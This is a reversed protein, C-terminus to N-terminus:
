RLCSGGRGLGKGRGFFKGGATARARSPIVAHLLRKVIYYRNSIFHTAVYASESHGCQDEQGCLAPNALYKEFFDPVLVAHVMWLSSPQLLSAWMDFAVHEM